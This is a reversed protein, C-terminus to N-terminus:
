SLIQQHQDDVEKDPYFQRTCSGILSSSQREIEWESLHVEIGLQGKICILGLKLLKFVSRLCRILHCHGTVFAQAFLIFFWFYPNREQLLIWLFLLWMSRKSIFQLKQSLIPLLLHQQQWIQLYQVLSHLQTICLSHYHQKGQSTEIGCCTGSGEESNWGFSCFKENDSFSWHLMSNWLCFVLLVLLTM